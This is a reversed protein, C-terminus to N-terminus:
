LLAFGDLDPMMVDLLVLQYINDKLKKLGEAGLYCCDVDINEQLVSKRVLDCLQKDDDIFLIKKM